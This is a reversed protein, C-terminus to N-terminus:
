KQRKRAGAQAAERKIEALLRPKRPTPHDAGHRMRVVDMALDTDEPPGLFTLTVGCSPHPCTWKREACTM